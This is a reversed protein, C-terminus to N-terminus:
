SRPACRREGADLERGFWERAQEADHRMARIAVQKAAEDMDDMLGGTARLADRFMRDSVWRDGRFLRKGLGPLRASPFSGGVIVGLVEVGDAELRRALAVAPASGVCHGYIAVPRASTATAAIEAALAEVLRDLPLPLEDPRAPDHGPLEAALVEVQDGLAWALPQYVAASGGGYPLCVLTHTSTRGGGLRHLLGGGDERDLFAALEAVAPRTFLDIVRLGHGIEKVARVAAFSDGGLAFFDDGAGVEPVDLVQAYVRAVLEEAATAPAVFVATEAQPAPLAARDVKGNPNLPIRDLVVLQTPVM